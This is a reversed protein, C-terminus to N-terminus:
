HETCNKHDKFKATAAPDAIKSNSSAKSCMNKPKQFNVLMGLIVYSPLSLIKMMISSQLNGDCVELM